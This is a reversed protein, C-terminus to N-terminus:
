EELMRKLAQVTKWNRTTVSQKLVREFYSNTIKTRGYGNPCYLFYHGLSLVAMEGEQLPIERAAIAEHLFTVHLCGVDVGDEELLPNSEAVKLFGSKQFVFVSVEHGFDEHIAKEIMGAHGNSSASGSFVVNGSQLYTQVGSFGLREFLGKLDAM